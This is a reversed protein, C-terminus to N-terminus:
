CSYQSPKTPNFNVGMKKSSEMEKIAEQTEPPVLEKILDTTITIVEKLHEKNFMSMFYVWLIGGIPNWALDGERFKAEFPFFISQFDNFYPAMDGLVSELTSIRAESGQRCLANYSVSYKDYLPILAQHFRGYLYYDTLPWTAATLLFVGHDRKNESPSPDSMIRIALSNLRQMHLLFIPDSPASPFQIQKSGKKITPM